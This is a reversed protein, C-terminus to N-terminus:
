LATYVTIALKAEDGRDIKGTYMYMSEVHIYPHRCVYARKIPTILRRERIRSLQNENGKYIYICVIGCVDSSRLYHVSLPKIDM